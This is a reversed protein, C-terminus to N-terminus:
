QLMWSNSRSTLENKIEKLEGLDIIISLIKDTHECVPILGFQNLTSSVLNTLYLSWKNGLDHLVIFRHQTGEVKYSYPLGTMRLWEEFTKLMAFLDYKNALRLVTDRSKTQAMNEAISRIEAHTFRDLFKVLLAKRIPIFETNHLNWITYNELTKNILSNVSVNQKKAKDRLRELM